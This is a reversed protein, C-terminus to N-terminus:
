CGDSRMKGGLKREKEKIDQKTSLNQHHKTTPNRTHPNHGPFELAKPTQNMIMGAVNMRKPMHNIIMGTINMRKALLNIFKTTLNVRENTYLSTKGTLNKYRALLTIFKTTFNM